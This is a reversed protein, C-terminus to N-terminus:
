SNSRMNCAVHSQAADAAVSTLDVVGRDPEFLGNGVVFDTVIRPSEDAIQVHGLILSYKHLRISRLLSYVEIILFICIKKEKSFMCM